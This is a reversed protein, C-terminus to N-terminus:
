ELSWSSWSTLRLGEALVIVPIVPSATMETVTLRPSTMDLDYGEVINMTIVDEMLNTMTTM